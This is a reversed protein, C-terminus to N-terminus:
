KYLGETLPADYDFEEDSPNMMDKLAQHSNPLIPTIPKFHIKHTSKETAIVKILAILGCAFGLLSFLLSFLIVGTLLGLSIDISSLTM